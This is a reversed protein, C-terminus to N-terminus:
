GGGGSSDAESIRVNNLKKELADFAEEVAKHEVEKRNPFMEDSIISQNGDDVRWHWGGQMWNISIFISNDDFADFLMRPNTGVLKSLTEGNLSFSKASEVFDEPLGKAKLSNIFINTYYRCLFDTSKPHQELLTKM